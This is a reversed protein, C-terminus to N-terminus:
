PDPIFMGSGYCKFFCLIEKLIKGKQAGGLLFLTGPRVKLWGRFCWKWLPHIQRVKTGRKSIGARILYGDSLFMLLVKQAEM